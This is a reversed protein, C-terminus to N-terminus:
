SFLLFHSYTELRESNLVLICDVDKCQFLLTCAYGVDWSLHFYKLSFQQVCVCVCVRVPIKNAQKIYYINRWKLCEGRELHQVGEQPDNEPTQITYAYTESCEIQEMKLPLHTLFILLISFKPTNIRCFTQGSFLRLWCSPPHCSLPRTRTCM